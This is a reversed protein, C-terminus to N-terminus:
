GYNLAEYDKKPKIDRYLSVGASIVYILIALFLVMFYYDLNFFFTIGRIVSFGSALLAVSIICFVGAISGFIIPSLQHEKKNFIHMLIIMGFIFTLMLGYVTLNFFTMKTDEEVIISGSDGNSFIFTYTGYDTMNFTSNCLFDNYKSLSHTFISLNGNFLSISLTTCSIETTNTPLFILCPVETDTITGKCEEIAYISFALLILFIFYTIYKRM